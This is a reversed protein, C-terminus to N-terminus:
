SPGEKQKVSYWETRYLEIAYIDYKAHLNRIAYLRNECYRQVCGSRM